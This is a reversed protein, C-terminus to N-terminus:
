IELVIKVIQKTENTAYQTQTISVWEESERKIQITLKHINRHMRLIWTMLFVNTPGDRFSESSLSFLIFVPNREAYTGKCFIIIFKQYFCNYLLLFFGTKLKQKYFLLYTNPSVAKM